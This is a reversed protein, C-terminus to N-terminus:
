SGYNVLIKIYIFFLTPPCVPRWCSTLKRKEEKTLTEGVIEPQGQLHLGGAEAELRKVPWQAWESDLYCNM